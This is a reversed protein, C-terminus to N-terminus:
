ACVRGRKRRCMCRLMCCPRLAIKEIAYTWMDPHTAHSQLCGSWGRQRQESGQKPHAHVNWVCVRVCMSVFLCSNIIHIKGIISCCCKMLYGEVCVCSANLRIHAHVFELRGGMSRLITKGTFSPLLVKFGILFLFLTLSLITTELAWFGLEHCFCKNSGPSLFPHTELLFLLFSAVLYTRWRCDTLDLLGKIKHNDSLLLM